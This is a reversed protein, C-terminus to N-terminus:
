QPIALSFDWVFTLNFQYFLYIFYIFSHLNFCFNDKTLERAFNTKNEACAQEM